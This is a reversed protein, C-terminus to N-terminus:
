CRRERGGDSEEVNKREFGGRLMSESLFERFSLVGGQWRRFHRRTRRRVLGTIGKDRCERASAGIPPALKAEPLPNVVVLPESGISSWAFTRAEAEDQAIRRVLTVDLVLENLGFFRATEADKRGADAM